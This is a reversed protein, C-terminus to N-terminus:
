KLLMMKKLSTFINGTSKDVAILKYIYVGSAINKNLTSSSFNVTYYGASQEQNVLNGIMEGNINYVELIIKSDFPLCYNIRTSPNFPNPYNQSLEFNKPVAIETEVISSYKYSGDYDIMKLRYQYKGAQLDKETYSYKQPATSTGSANITGVSLWTVTADKSSILTRNVEFKNFNVETKTEWNLNVQSGKVNSTFSTLEVPVSSTTFGAIMVNAVISATSAAVSAAKRWIIIRLSLTGGNPVTLSSPAVRFTSFTGATGSLTDGTKGYTNFTTFYTGDTSYGVAVNMKTSVANQCAQLSMSDIKLSYGAAPSITFQVYRPKTGNSLGTFTSDAATTTGDGPYHTPGTAGLVLGAPSTSQFSHGAFGDVTLTATDITGATIHGVTIPTGDTTLAWTASATQASVAMSLLSLGILVFLILQKM